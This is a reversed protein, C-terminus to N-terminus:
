ASVQEVAADGAGEAIYDGFFAKHATQLWSRLLPTQIFSLEKRQILEAPRKGSNRVTLAVLDNLEPLDVMRVGKARLDREIPELLIFKEPAGFYLNRVITLSAFGPLQVLPLARQKLLHVSEQDRSVVFFLDISKGADQVAESLVARNEWLWGGGGAPLNIVINEPAELIMQWNEFDQHDIAVGNKYRRYFDLNTGDADLPLFDIGRAILGDAYAIASTTKGVGGRDGGFIVIKREM